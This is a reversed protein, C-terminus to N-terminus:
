IFYCKFSFHKGITQMIILNTANTESAGVFQNLNKVVFISANYFNQHRKRRYRYVYFFNM